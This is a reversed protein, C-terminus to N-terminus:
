ASMWKAFRESRDAVVKGDRELITLVALVRPYDAGTILRIQKATMPKAAAGLVTVVKGMLATKEPSPADKADPPLRAVHKEAKASKRWADALAEETIGDSILGKREAQHITAPDFAFPRQCMVKLCANISPTM